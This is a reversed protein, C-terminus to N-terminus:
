IQSCSQAGLIEQDSYEWVDIDSLAHITAGPGCPNRRKIPSEIIPATESESEANDSDILSPSPSAAPSPAEARPQPFRRPAM